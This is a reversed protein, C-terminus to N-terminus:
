YTIEPINFKCACRLNECREFRMSERMEMLIFIEIRASRARQVNVIATLGTSKFAVAIMLGVGVGVRVGTSPLNGTTTVFEGFAPAPNFAGFGFSPVVEVESLAPVSVADIAEPGSAAELADPTTGDGVVTEVTSTIRGTGDTGIVAIAAGTLGM